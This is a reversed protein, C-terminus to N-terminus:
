FVYQSLKMREDRWVNCADFRKLQWGLGWFVEKLM